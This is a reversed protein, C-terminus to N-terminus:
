RRGNLCRWPRMPRIVADLQHRRSQVPPTRLPGHMVSPGLLTILEHGTFRRLHVGKTAEDVASQCGQVHQPRDIVITTSVPPIQDRVNGRSQVIRARHAVMIPHLLSRKAAPSIECLTPLTSEEGRLRQCWLIVIGASLESVNLKDALAIDERDYVATLVKIRAYATPGAGHRSVRLVGPKEEVDIPYYCTEQLAAWSRKGMTCRTTGPLSWRVVTGPLAEITAPPSAVWTGGTVDALMTLVVLIRTSVLDSREEDDRSHLGPELAAM